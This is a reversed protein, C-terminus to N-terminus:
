VQKLIMDDFSPTDVEAAIVRIGCWNHEVKYRKINPM